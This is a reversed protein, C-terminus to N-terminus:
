LVPPVQRPTPRDTYKKGINFIRRAHEGHYPQDLSARQVDIGLQFFLNSFNLANQAQPINTDFASLTRTNITGKSTRTSLNFSQIGDIPGGVFKITPGAGIIGGGTIAQQFNSGIRVNVGTINDIGERLGAPNTVGARPLALFKVRWADGPQGNLSLDDRGIVSTIQFGGSANQGTRGQSFDLRYSNGDVTAIFDIVESSVVSNGITVELPRRVTNGSVVGALNLAGSFTGRSCTITITGARANVKASYTAGDFFSRVTVSGKKDLRGSFGVGGLHFAFDSNVLSTQDMGLANIVGKLRIIDRGPSNLDGSVSCSLTMMDSSTVPYDGVNLTFTQDNANANRRSKAIFGFGDFARVTIQFTGVALPRGYIRGSASLFLGLDSLRLSSGDATNTVATETMFTPFTGGILNISAVYASDLRASPITDNAFRFPSTASDVLFLNFFGTASASNTGRADTVTTQFRLGPTGLFTKTNANVSDPARGAFVGSIGLELTSSTNAIVNALSNPGTSTFRYPKIGGEATIYRIITSGFAADGLDYENPDLTVGGADKVNPTTFRLPLYTGVARAGVGIPATQPLATALAYSFGALAFFLGIGISRPGLLTVRM